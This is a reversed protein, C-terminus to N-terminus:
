SLRTSSGSPIRPESSSLEWFSASSATIRSYSPLLDTFMQVFGPEAPAAAARIVRHEIVADLARDDQDFEVMLIRHPGQLLILGAYGCSVMDMCNDSCRVAVIVALVQERLM